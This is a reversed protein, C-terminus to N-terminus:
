EGSGAKCSRCLMNVIGKQVTGFLQPVMQNCKDCQFINKKSVKVKKKM